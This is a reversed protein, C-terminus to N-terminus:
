HTKWIRKWASKNEHTVNEDKWHNSESEKVRILTM